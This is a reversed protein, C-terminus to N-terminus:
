LSKSRKLALFPIGSIDEDLQFQTNVWKLRTSQKHTTWNQSDLQTSVFCNEFGQFLFM